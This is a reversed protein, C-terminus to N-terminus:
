SRALGSRTWAVISRTDMAGSQRSIERGGRLLLLTPIGTIGLRSSAQPANDSNLKLLRVEPELEKAAREFMPAMARCPGCWPAWVDVLVPLDSHALHRAFGQEDVEIPHGDFLPKHCSGCRAATAPRDAPLRNIQGCHGCVIQGTSM